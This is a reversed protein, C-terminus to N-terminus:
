RGGELAARLRALAVSLADHGAQTTILAALDDLATAAIDARVYATPM